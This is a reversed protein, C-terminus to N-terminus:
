CISASHHQTTVAKWEHQAKRSECFLKGYKNKRSAQMTCCINKEIRPPCLHTLHSAWPSLPLTLTVSSGSGLSPLHVNLFISVSSIHWMKCIHGIFKKYPKPGPQHPETPPADDWLQFTAPEIGLWPVRRPQLNSGWACVPPLWDISREQM